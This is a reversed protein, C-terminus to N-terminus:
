VGGERWGRSMSRDKRRGGEEEERRDEGGGREEPGALRGGSTKGSMVGEVWVTGRGRIEVWEKQNGNGREPSDQMM